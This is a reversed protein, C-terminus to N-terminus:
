TGPYWNLWKDHLYLDIHKVGHIIFMSTQFNRKSKTSNKQLRKIYIITAQIQIFGHTPYYSGNLLFVVLLILIYGNYYYNNNNNSNIQNLHTTCPLFSVPM